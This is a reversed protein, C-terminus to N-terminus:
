PSLLDSLIKSGLEENKEVFQGTLLMFSYTLEAKEEGNAVGQLLVSVFEREQKKTIRALEIDSYSDLLSRFQIYFPSEIDSEVLVKNIAKNIQEGFSFVRTQPSLIMRIM